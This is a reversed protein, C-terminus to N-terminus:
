STTVRKVTIFGVNKEWPDPDLEAPFINRIRGSISIFFFYIEIKPLYAHLEINYVMM